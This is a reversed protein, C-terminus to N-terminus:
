KDPANSSPGEVCVELFEEGLATVEAYGRTFALVGGRENWEANVEDFYPHQELEEYPESLLEEMSISILGLRQLNALYVAERSPHTCGATFRLNSFYREVDYIGFVSVEGENEEFQDSAFAYVLPVRGYDAIARFLRAEDPLLQRIIEAFAPHAKVALDPSMSSALLNAFLERLEPESGAFRLGELAPGAVYAPPTVLDEPPIDTLKSAIRDAVMEVVFEWGELTKYIPLLLAHVTKQIAGGLEKAVPRALDHAIPSILGKEAGSDEGPSM